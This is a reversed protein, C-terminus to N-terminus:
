RSDCLGRRASRAPGRVTGVGHRPYYLAEPKATLFTANESTHENIYALARLYSTRDPQICSPPDALSFEDCAQRTAVNHLSWAAGRGLIVLSMVCMVILSWHGGLRRAFVALGLLLSPLLLPIVPELFRGLEYPWVVLVAAYLVLYLAAGPWRRSLEVLGALVGATVVVAWFWNDVSTGGILPLPLMFPLSRGGYEPALETIRNIVDSVLGGSGSRLVDPFYHLGEFQEPALAGWILWAGVTFLSAVGFATVTKYRRQLLWAIGVAAVLSVGITRTLAAGIAAGAALVLTRGIRPGAASGRGAHTLAWLCLFSLFMYLPESRVSGARAALFPNVALCALSLLAGTPSWIRRLSAFVVGLAATSLLVSLVLFHTFTTGIAAGWVALLVPLGPPYVSHLPQGILYLDRYTFDRLSRALLIYRGDDQGTLLAVERGGWSLAAHVLLLIAAIAWVRREDLRQDILETYDAGHLAM